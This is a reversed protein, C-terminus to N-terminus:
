GLSSSGFSQQESHTKSEAGTSSVGNGANQNNRHLESEPALDSVRRMVVGGDAQLSRYYTNPKSDFDGEPNVMRYIYPMLIALNAVILATGVEAKIIISVLSWSSALLLIVHLIVMVSTAMNATFMLLLMRQKRKPLSVRYLLQLPLAILIADTVLSATLETIALNRNDNLPCVPDPLNYWTLNSACFCLKAVLFSICMLLLCVFAWESIRRLSFITPILRVTSLILSMRACWVGAAYGILTLWFQIIGADRKYSADQNNSLFIAVIILVTLLMTVFAWADDWWLRRNRYRIYIRAITTLQAIGLFIPGFVRNVELSVVIKSLM